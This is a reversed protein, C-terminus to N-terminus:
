GSTAVATRRRLIPLVALLAILFLSILTGIWAPREIPLPERVVSVGPTDAPLGEVHIFGTGPDCSAPWERGQSYVHLFPYYFKRLASDPTKLTEYSKLLQYTSMTGLVIDHAVTTCSPLYEPADVKLGLGEREYAQLLPPLSTSTDPAPGLLRMVAATAVFVLLFLPMRSLIETRRPMAKVAVAIALGCVLDLVSLTRWPFQLIALFEAHKWLVLSLPSVLFLVAGAVAIWPRLGSFEPRKRIPFTVGAFIAVTVLFCLLLILDFTNPSRLFFLQEAPQLVDWFEPKIFWQGTLAPLVYISAAGLGLLGGLIALGAVRLSRSQYATWLSLIAMVPAFILTSPLHSFALGACSLALGAAYLPNANLRLICLSALPMFIFAAQEGYAARVWIDIVFHYPLAMYALAGIISEQRGAFQRFLLYGAVGSLGLMLTSGMVVSVSANGTLYIFPATLYFPLPAYFYFAPSGLGNNMDPLWRPYIEGQALQRAFGDAWGVNFYSSQGILEGRILAPSMLIISVTLMVLFVGFGGSRLFLNKM